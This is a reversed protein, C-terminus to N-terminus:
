QILAIYQFKLSDLSSRNHLIFDIIVVVVIIAVAILHLLLSIRFVTFLPFLFERHLLRFISSRSAPSASPM